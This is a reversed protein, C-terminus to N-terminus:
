SAGAFLNDILAGAVDRGRGGAPFHNVGFDPNTNVEIVCWRQGEPPRSIDDAILDIGAHRADFVARRAAVAVEAWGPDVIDTVDLSEGGSGINAVSHLQVRRGAEIVSNEDLGFRALTARMLETLVVPKAGHYPNAARLRNKEEILQAVTCVGDGVVYAPVRHAAAALRNGIVFLRYDNGSFHQEVVITSAKTAKAVEWARRFEDETRIDTYVGKGGSGTLPKVVVPLGIQQAFAWAKDFEAVPFASGEPVIVGEAKLLTRTWQKDNSARRAALLTADSMGFCFIRTVGNGSIRTIDASLEDVTLGRQRAADRLLRAQLRYSAPFPKADAPPDFVAAPAFVAPEKPASERKKAIGDVIDMLHVAIGSAPSGYAAFAPTAIAPDSNAEIICANDSFADASFDRVIIDLGVQTAGPLADFARRALEFFSPHLVDILSVAEGGLAVNSVSALQVFEGKAPVHELTLGLQKDLHDFQSIPYRRMLPNNARRANKEEVLQAISRVGDGVVYAPVRCVAAVTKGGAVIMRLEDGEHFDEVVVQRRGGGARKWAEEFAEPTTVRTTVGSGGSGTLPKVVQPCRTSRFYRLAPAYNIFSRGQPVPLGASALLRRTVEKSETAKRGAFTLNPSNPSFIAQVGNENAVELHTNGVLRTTYGRRRAEERIMAYVPNGRGKKLHSSASFDNEGAAMVQRLIKENAETAAEVLIPPPPAGDQDFDFGRSNRPEQGAALSSSIAALYDAKLEVASDFCGKIGPFGNAEFLHPMGDAIGFDLGLADIQFPYADQLTAAIKLAAVRMMEIIGTAKDGYLAQLFETADHASGGRALNSTLGDIGCRAYIRAIRWEGGASRFVPVRIDFPRGEGDRSAIYKQVMWRGEGHSAAFAELGADDLVERTEDSTLAITGDGLRTLLLIDRGRNSRFPKLIAKGDSALVDRINKATVPLSPILWCRALPDRELIALTKKKGGLDQCTVFSRAGLERLLQFEAPRRAPSNFIIPPVAFLAPEWRGDVFAFGSMAGDRVDATGYSAYFPKLGREVAKRAIANIERYGRPTQPQYLFAFARPDAPKPQPLSKLKPSEGGRLLFNRYAVFGSLYHEVDDIRVRFAHHRIFFSGVIRNPNRYYMALEPWFHGNLLYHARVDLARYFKEIDVAALLHKLHDSEAIRTLMQEAAMMLELLTPFTTIREIVFDLYTAFNQIGFRFYREDPRYRTLENVCYSLWHDHHRWHEAAIFHEFAKEVTEILAPNRTLEYLRMLGFAAEGDYYITRFADKVSLDAFNLVHVFGGTEKDQMFRIGAALREALPLLHTTGTVASYKALALITVANGGLKVEGNAEVLFAAQSGDPLTTDRVLERQICGLSRDIAAKLQEDRTVEWAEIMSYTTSAHRLVNYSAIRRDFCPHYGYIFRGDEQVEGALYNSSTRILDLVDDETLKDIRRRSANPGSGNLAFVEGNEACFAGGSTFVYVNGDDAFNIAPLQRYKSRAYLNFNNPNLTASYVTNGGYLMANANLEQELFATELNRDLAIGFRFYNRKIGALVGKLDKWRLPRVEDVWDVRLWRGKLGDTEMVRVLSAAAKDWATDFDPGTGGVVKARRDGDSVSLFLAHSPYPAPLRKVSKRVLDRLRSLRSDPGPGPM